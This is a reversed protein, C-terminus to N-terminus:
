FLSGGESRIPVAAWVDRRGSSRALVMYRAHGHANGNDYYAVVILARMNLGVFSAVNVGSKVNIESLASLESRLRQTSEASVATAGCFILALAVFRMGRLRM